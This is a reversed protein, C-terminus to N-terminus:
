GNVASAVMMATANINCGMNDYVERLRFEHDHVHIGGAEDFAAVPHLGRYLVWAPQMVPQIGRLMDLEAQAFVREELTPLVSLDALAWDDIGFQVPTLSRVQWQHRDHVRAALLLAIVTYALIRDPVAHRPEGTVPTLGLGIEVGRIVDMPSPAILAKEWPMTGTQTPTIVTVGTKDFVVRMQSRIESPITMSDELELILADGDVFDVQQHLRLEDTRAVLQSVVWWAQPLVFRHAVLAQDARM